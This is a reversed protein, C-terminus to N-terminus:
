VFEELFKENVKLLLLVTSLNNKENFLFGARQMYNEVAFTVGKKFLLELYNSYKDHNNEIILITFIKREKLKLLDNYTKKPRVKKFVTQLGDEYGIYLLSRYCEKYDLLAYMSWSLIFRQLTINEEKFEELPIFPSCSFLYQM